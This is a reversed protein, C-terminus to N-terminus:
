HRFIQLEILERYLSDLMPSNRRETCRMAFLHVVTMFSLLSIVWLLRTKTESDTM